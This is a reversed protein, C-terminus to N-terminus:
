AIGLKLGKALQDGQAQTALQLDTADVAGDGNVDTPLNTGTRGLFAKIQSLDASDVAQSGNVDGLLRDFYAAPAFHGNGLYDIDIEYYGDWATSSQAGAVSGIGYHGFDLEIAQDLATLNVGSLSIPQDGAAPGTLAHKIVEIRNGAILNQLLANPKNFGIDVYEVFSRGVSGHEVYLSTAKLSVTAFKATVTLNANPDSPAPQVNGQKDTGVSFFRYSHTQGDQIASYNATGSYVYSLVGGNNVTSPSRAAVTVFAMPAAGDVAAYLTFSGIDPGDPDTGSYSVVFTPKSTNVGTVATVPPGLDPLFTTADAVLAKKELNGAADTAVSRFGYTHNPSGTFTLTDHYVGSADPSGATVTGASLFAGGDTSVSVAFKVVGSGPVGPALAPDTGSLPVAFVPSTQQAALPAVTSTPPTTDMLWSTSLTGSVPLGYSDLFRSGILGLTYLGQVATSHVLGTLAYTNGTALTLSLQPVNVTKGDDSLTAAGSPLIRTAVPGSFTVDITSVAHNTPNPTVLTIATLVVQPVINITTSAQGSQFATGQGNYLATIAHSGDSLSGLNLSATGNSLSASGLATGDVQFTVTGQAIRNGANVAAVFAKVTVQQADTALSPAAVQVTTPLPGVAVTLTQTGASFDSAGLYNAAIVHSGASLPGPDFTATGLTGLPVPTGTNAGDFTFQVSGMTVPSGTTVASAAVTFVADQGDVPSPLSSAVSMAVQDPLITLTGPVETIAYNPDYAGSIAITFTGADVASSTVSLTPATTLSAPTDGNVLGMYSASLSPLAQSYTISDSAATITLPAPSVTMSQDVPAAPLTFANGPQTAQVTVTGAGTITLINGQLTAPGSVLSLTVPLSASSEAALAIPRAGYIQDAIAAFSISQAALTVTIGQSFESTDGPTPPASPDGAAPTLRTATATLFWGAAVTTPLPTAFSADGGADTTVQAFGLYQQGEGYGSPELNPSAFFEIRFQTNSVSNLTGTVTTRGPSLIASSLMPYNQLHNPGVNADGSHNPTVGDSALDIGLGSASNGGDGFISNGLIANGVGANVAVGVFGNFAITNGAGAATGGITNSSASDSNAILVGNESNGLNLTGTADTGILNGQLRNGSTPGIGAILVGIANGSIVNGFGAVTGGLTNGSAGVMQVGVINRLEASDGSNVGILNGQAVNGNASADFDIGTGNGSIVNGASGAGGITNGSANYIRVGIGNGMALNGTADTGILNGEILNGTSQANDIRIGVSRNGSILNGSGPQDGGLLNDHSQNLALGANLNPVAALGAADTGIRNGSVTSSAVGELFVGHNLNGSILNDTVVEDTGGEIWLGYSNPVAFEGTPDTGLYCADITAGDAAVSIGTGDFGNVILGRITTGAANVQLGNEPGSAISAGSLQILPTGTFGPQTAGDIAMSNTIAPLPSLANITQVGTGPIAFHIVNFGYIADANLIAQRLSGRGVDNSNSVAFPDGTWSYIARSFESTDGPVLLASPDSSAPVLRTATATVFWGDPVMAPVVASFAVNGSADTSAQYQGLYQKGEGYGSPGIAPGAFFEIRFTSSSVSNLTGTITTQGSVSATSSLVPYNQLDNPGTNADGAHNPTVGDSGLDIGLASSPPSGNSFISNGLVANDNGSDIGIGLRANFAIINGDGPNTGGITNGSAKNFGVGDVQNPIPLTGTVDTGIQNGVVSTGLTGELFVGHDVNGSILNNSVTAHAGQVDVGLADPDAAEGTPDTGLYNHDITSEDGQALIGTGSFGAVILGRVTSGAAILQLGFADAFSSPIAVGTLQVIPTGAYGPQTTGDITVPDTLPPLPSLLDISQLGTGPIAFHVLDLGPHSNANVIAQRLSGPGSDATNTVAFPDNTWDFTNSFRELTSLGDVRFRISKGFYVDEAYAYHEGDSSTFATLGMGHDIWGSSGGNDAGVVGTSVLLGDTTYMRVWLQDGWSHGTWFYGPDTDPAVAVLHPESIPILDIRSGDPAREDIANGGMWFYGLDRNGATTGILFLDGNNSVRLNTASFYHYSTDPPVAVHMQSWDYLPNGQADFGQLDLRTTEGISGIDSGQVYASWSAIYVNGAEDVWWGPSLAQYNGPLTTHTKESDEVQGDGNTDTWNWLGSGDDQGIIASLRMGTPSLAYVAVTKDIFYYLYEQGNSLKRIVDQHSYYQNNAPQWNDVVSWQGYNPGPTDDVKYQFTTSLLMNPDVNPDVVPAPQFESFRERLLTGDPNYTLVRRNGEDAVVIRGSPDVALGAQDTTAWYLGDDTVPGPQAAHFLQRVQNLTAPDFERVSADGTEGVYLHNDPGGVAVTYPANLGTIQNLVTGDSTFDTVQDTGNAVWVGGSGDLAMGLPASVSFESLLNGTGKDYVEVRDQANNSVWLRTADVALGYVGEGGAPNIVLNGTPLTTWPAASGDAVSLREIHNEGNADRAAYIYQGDIALASGGGYFNTAWLAQGDPSWARLEHHTEEYYSFEYVNGTADTAVATASSSNETVGYPPSGADGVEGDDVAQAQSAIARWQYQGAPQIIGADNYGDWNLAVTGASPVDEMLTRVIQGSSDYIAASLQGAFPMDVTGIQTLLAREELAQVHLARRRRERSRGRGTMTRDVTFM